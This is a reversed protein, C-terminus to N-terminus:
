KSIFSTTFGAVAIKSKTFYKKAWNELLTSAAFSIFNLEICYNRERRV